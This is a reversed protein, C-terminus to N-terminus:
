EIGMWEIRWDQFLFAREPEPVDSLVLEPSLILRVNVTFRGPRLETTEVSLLGDAYFEFFREEGDSVRLLRPGDIRASYCPPTLFGAERTDVEGRLVFVTEDLESFLSWVPAARGCVIRPQTPPRANRRRAIAPRQELRCARVEVQALVIKRGERVDRDLNGDVVRLVGAGDRALRVWCFVPEERLRVAGHTQCLGLRTELEELDEDSPYSVTLYYFASGGDDGGEVPPVPEIRTRTSVIEHGAADLAYGPGVTLAREGREGSVAFGNGIGPQHLSRNHLERMERHFAEIGQLDSALLRQGDFFQHREIFRTHDLIGM